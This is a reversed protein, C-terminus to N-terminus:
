SGRCLAQPRGFASKRKTELAVGAYGAGPMRYEFPRQATYAKAATRLTTPSGTTVGVMGAASRRDDGGQGNSDPDHSKRPMAMRQAM